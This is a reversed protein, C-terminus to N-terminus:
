QCKLFSKIIILIEEDEMKIQKYILERKDQEERILQGISKAGGGSYNVGRKPEEPIVPPIIVTCNNLYGNTAIPLTKGCGSLYGDSAIGLTYGM